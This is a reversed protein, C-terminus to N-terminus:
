PKVDTKGEPQPQEFPKNQVRYIGVMKEFEAIKRTVILDLLHHDIVVQGTYGKTQCLVVHRLTHEDEAVLVPVIKGMKDLIKRCEQAHQHYHVIFIDGDQMDTLLATTRGTGREAHEHKMMAQGLSDFYPHKM